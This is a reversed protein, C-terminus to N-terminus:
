VRDLKILLPALWFGFQAGVFGVIFPVIAVPIFLVILVVLGASLALKVLEGLYFAVLIWKVARPSTTAFLRRAFYFSPIVCAAGGLLASFAETAGSIWWGAAIIIVVLAQLGVFRYAIGRAYRTASDGSSKQRVFGRRRFVTVIKALIYIKLPPPLTMDTIM